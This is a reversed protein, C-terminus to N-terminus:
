YSTEASKAVNVVIWGLNFEEIRHSLLGELMLLVDFHDYFTKSSYLGYM